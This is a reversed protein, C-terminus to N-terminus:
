LATCKGIQVMEQAVAVFGSICYSGYSVFALGLGKVVASNGSLKELTGAGYGLLMGCVLWNM